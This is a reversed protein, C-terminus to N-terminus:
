RVDQILDGINCLNKNLRISHGLADSLEVVIWRHDTKARRNEAAWAADQQMAYWGDMRGTDLDLILFVRKSTMLIVMEKM